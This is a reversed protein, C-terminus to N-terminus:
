ILNTLNLDEPAVVASPNGMRQSNRALVKYLEVGHYRSACCVERSRGSSSNSQYLVFEISVRPQNGKFVVHSIESFSQEWVVEFNKSLLYVYKESLAVGYPADARPLGSRQFGLSLAAVYHDIYGKRKARALICNQAECSFLDLPTLILISSDNEGREFTRAHRVRTMSVASDAVQQSIGQTVSTIGDTVGLVPKVAAGVIGMGVGKFFGLAGEKKAQKYPNTVLGASGSTVGSLISEGGAKMGSLVGGQSARLERRREERKKMYADDGSLTLVGKAVSSVGSTATGVINATSSVLGAGFGTVLSSAGIGIGEVFAAPSEMM